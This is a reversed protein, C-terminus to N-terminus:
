LSEIVYPGAVSTSFKSAAELAVTIKEEPKLKKDSLAYMAGLAYSEGSGCAMYSDASEGVQFDLDIKYLVSKYGVLFVGGRHDNRDPLSGFGNEAFCKRLSDVFTTCMYQYNDQTDTQQAPDFKFRIIQGMRFSSTFGYIFSGKKFVKVDKRVTKSHGNSGLSDGGIYIKNKEVFGLICTM